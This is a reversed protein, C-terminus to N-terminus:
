ARCSLERGLGSGAVDAQGHRARHRLRVCAWQDAASMGGDLGWFQPGQPIQQNGNGGQASPHNAFLLYQHPPKSCSSTTWARNSFSRAARRDIEEATTALAVMLFKGRAELFAAAEDGVLAPKVGAEFTGLVLDKEKWPDSLTFTLKGDSETRGSLCRRGCYSWRQYAKAVTRTGLLEGDMTRLVIAKDSDKVGDPPAVILVEQDGFVESGAEIGRRSWLIEGTTPDIATLDRSRQLLVCHDLLPGVVGMSPGNSGTAPVHRIAGWPMHIEKAQLPQGNFMNPTMEVLDQQWLIRTGDGQQRLTDLALVQNGLNVLMLHGRAAAFNLEMSIPQFGLRNQGAENIGVRFREKGLGDRGIVQQQQQDFAVDVSDLFGPRAGRWTLPFPRQNNQGGASARIESPPERRVNGEPWPTTQVLAQQVPSDAALGDALEKGTKGSLCIENPFENALRRYFYAAEDSKGAETLLAM